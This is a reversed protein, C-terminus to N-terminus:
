RAFEWAENPEHGLRREIGDLIITQMLTEPSKARRRSEIGDLIIKPFVYEYYFKQAYSEIGDLIIENPLEIYELTTM